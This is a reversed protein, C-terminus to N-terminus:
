PKDVAIEEATRLNAVVRKGESEAVALKGPAVVVYEGEALGETVEIWGSSDTVGFRVPKFKLRGDVVTWVGLGDSMNVIAGMPVALGQKAVTRITAETQEGLTLRAPPRDFAVDITLQETVRDSERRIRAVQGTLTVGPLSRLSLDARDGVAIQGSGREDVYVTAWATRPDALKLIPTGPNVAAGPELERSVVFGDIPSAIRTDARRAEVSNRAAVATTIENQAIDVAAQQAAIEFLAAERQAQASKLEQDAAEAATNRADVDGQAVDGTASLRQWRAANARALTQNAKARAVAADAAALNAQARAVAAKQAPVSLQARQLAASARDVEARAESNELEILIQGKRVVDGQDANVVVVRGPVKAALMVVVKAEVTGVGQISPNLERFAVEVTTVPSPRLWLWAGGGVLALIAGFLITRSILKTVGNQM